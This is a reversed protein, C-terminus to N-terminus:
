LDFALPRIPSGSAGTMSLPAVILAFEYVGAQALEELFLNEVIHVGADVILAGHVPLPGPWDSPQEYMFTDSGTLKVGWEVLRHAGSLDVGPPKVRSRGSRYLERDGWGTRVLVAADPTIDVGQAEVSQELDRATVGEGPSLRDVGRMAAIDLLVGHHVFPGAHQIALGGHHEADSASWGGHLRGGCSVHNLADIHTGTHSGM